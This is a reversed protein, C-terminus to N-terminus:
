KPVLLVRFNPWCLNFKWGLKRRFMCKLLRHLIALCINRSFLVFCLHLNFLDLCSYGNWSILMTCTESFRTGLERGVQMEPRELWNVHLSGSSSLLSTGYSVRYDSWQEVVWEITFDGDVWWGMQDCWGMVVLWKDNEESQSCGDRTLQPWWEGKWCLYDLNSYFVGNM